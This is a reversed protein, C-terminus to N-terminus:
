LRWFLIVGMIALKGFTLPRIKKANGAYGVVGLLLPSKPAGM